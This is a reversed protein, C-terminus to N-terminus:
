RTCERSLFHKISMSSTIFTVTYLKQSLHCLVNPSLTWNSNTYLGLPQKQPQTQHLRAQVWLVRVHLETSSFFRFLIILINGFPHILPFSGKYRWILFPMNHHTSLWQHCRLFSVPRDACCLDRESLRCLVLRKGDSIDSILFSKRAKKQKAHSQKGGQQQTIIRCLKLQLYWVRSTSVYWQSLTCLPFVAEELMLNYIVNEKPVQIPLPVFLLSRLPLHFVHSM